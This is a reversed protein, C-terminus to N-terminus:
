LGEMNQRARINAAHDIPPPIPKDLVRYLAAADIFEGGHVELALVGSVVDRLRDIEDALEAVFKLSPYRTRLEAVREPTM